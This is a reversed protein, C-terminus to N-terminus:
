QRSSQTHANESDGEAVQAPREIGAGREAIGPITVPLHGRMAIEGFLAKVASVEAISVNSFTCVYNQIMPFNQALYPSGMALVVTKDASRDLIKQLLAANGDPLSISNTLGNAGQVARGASPVVYVAAIVSDAEGVAKLVDASVDEAIRSDVYVVNVDPVRARIQRELTRGADM